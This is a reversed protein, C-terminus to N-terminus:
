AVLAHAHPRPSSIHNTKKTVSKNAICAHVTNGRYLGRTILAGELCSHVVDFGRGSIVGGGGEGETSRGTEYEEYTCLPTYDKRVRVKGIRTTKGQM